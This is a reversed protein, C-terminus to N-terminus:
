NYKECIQCQFNPTYAISPLFLISYPCHAPASEPPPHPTYVGGGEIQTLLIYM